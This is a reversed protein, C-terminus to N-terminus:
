YTTCYQLFVKACAHFGAIVYKAFTHFDRNMLRRLQRSNQGCNPSEPCTDVGHIDFKAAPQAGATFNAWTNNSTGIEAGGFPTLHQSQSIPVATPGTIDAYFETHDMEIIKLIVDAWHYHEGSKGTIPCVGPGKDKADPDVGFPDLDDDLPCYRCL